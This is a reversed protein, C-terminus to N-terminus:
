HNSFLNLCYCIVNPKIPAIEELYDIDINLFSQMLIHYLPHINSTHAYLLNTIYKLSETEIGLLQLLEEPIWKLFEKKKIITSVSIM